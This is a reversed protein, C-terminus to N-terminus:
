VRRLRVYGRDDLEPALGAERLEASGAVGQATLSGVLEQNALNGECANRVTLLGWERLQPNADDINCMNLCMTLGGCERLADQILPCQYCLNALLRAISSRLGFQPHLEQRTPELEPHVPTQASLVRPSLAQGFRVASAVVGTNSELLVKQESSMSQAAIALSEIADRLMAYNQPHHISREATTGTSASSATDPSVIESTGAELLGVLYHLTSIHIVLSRTSSTTNSIEPAAETDTTLVHLTTVECTSLKAHLLSLLAARLTDDSESSSALGVGLLEVPQTRDNQQQQQQQQQGLTKGVGALAGPSRILSDFLFYAWECMPAPSASERPVSEGQLADLALMAVWCRLVVMTCSARFQREHPNADDLSDAALVNGSFSSARQHVDCFDSWRRVPRRLNMCTNMFMFLVNALAICHADRATPELAETALISESQPTISQVLAAVRALRIPFTADWCVASTESSGVSMNAITQMAVRVTLLLQDIFSKQLPLLSVGSIADPRSDQGLEREPIGDADAEEQAVHRDATTRRQGGRQQQRSAAQTCTEVLDLASDLARGVAALAGALILDHQPGSSAKSGGAATSATPAGSSAAIARIPRMAATTEAALRALESEWEAPATRSAHAATRTAQLADQVATSFRGVLPNLAAVANSVETSPM